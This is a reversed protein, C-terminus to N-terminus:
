MVFGASQQKIDDHKSIVDDFNFGNIDGAVVDLVPLYIKRTLSLSLHDNMMILVYM